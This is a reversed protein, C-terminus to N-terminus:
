RQQQQRTQKQRLKAHREKLEKIKAAVASEVSIGKTTALQALLLYMDAIEGEFNKKSFSGRGSKENYIERAIEGLEEVLHILTTDTDHKGNLLADFEEILEASAKQLEDLNM